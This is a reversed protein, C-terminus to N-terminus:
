YLPSNLVVMCLIMYSLEGKLENLLIDIQVGCGKFICQEMFKEMLDWDEVQGHRVPYKVAYGKADMAEDGIFFDLDEVGRTLRRTADDGVQVFIVYDILLVNNLFASFWKSQLPAPPNDESM